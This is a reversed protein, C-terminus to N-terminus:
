FLACGPDISYHNWFRLHYQFHLDFITVGQKEALAMYSPTEVHLVHKKLESVDPRSHVDSYGDIIRVTKLKVGRSAREAATEAVKEIDFAGRYKLEIVLEELEPCVVAGLSSMSPHLARVLIHPDECQTLVLTRLDNIPLLAQYLLDSTLSRGHKIELRETKSTDFNTLLQLV